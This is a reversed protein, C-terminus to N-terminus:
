YNPVIPANMINAFSKRTAKPRGHLTGDFINNGTFENGCTWHKKSETKGSRQAMRLLDKGMSTRRRSSVAKLQRRCPESSIVRTPTEDEFTVTGFSVGRSQEPKKQQYGIILEKVDDKHKTKKWKKNCLNTKQETEFQGSLQLIIDRPHKQLRQAPFTKLGKPKDRLEETNIGVWGSDHDDEAAAGINSILHQRNMTPIIDNTSYSIHTRGGSIRRHSHSVAEPALPQNSLFFDHEQQKQKVHNPIIRRRGQTFMTASGIRNPSYVPDMSMKLLQYSNM